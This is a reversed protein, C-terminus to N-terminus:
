RSTAPSGSAHPPTARLIPVLDLALRKSFLRAGEAGLHNLNYLNKHAYFAPFREPDRYDLLTAGGEIRQPDFGAVDGFWHPPTVVFIPEIGHGRIEAAWRGLDEWWLESTGSSEAQATDHIAAIGEERLKQMRKGRGPRSDPDDNLAQFGNWTPVFVSPSLAARLGSVALGVNAFRLAWQDLHTKTAALKERMSLNSFWAPRVALWAYAPRHWDIVRRSYAADSYIPGRPGLALDGTLDILMWRLHRPEHALINRVTGRVEFYRMGGMGFNFSRLEVGEAALTRDFHEADFQRYVRSTGVFVLDFTDLQTAFATHKRAALGGRDFRSEIPAKDLIWGLGVCAVTFSLAFALLPWLPGGSPTKTESVLADLRQQALEMGDIRTSAM